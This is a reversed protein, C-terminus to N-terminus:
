DWIVRGAEDSKRLRKMYGALLCKISSDSLTEAFKLLSHAERINLSFREGCDKSLLQEV